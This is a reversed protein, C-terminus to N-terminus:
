IDAVLGLTYIWREYELLDINADVSMYVVSAYASLQKYVPVKYSGNVTYRIEHRDFSNDPYDRDEYRFLLAAQSKLPLSAILGAHGVSDIRNYNDGSANVMGYGYGIWTNVKGGALYFHQYLSIITKQNDRDNEDNGPDEFTEGEVDVVLRTRLTNSWIFTAEPSAAWNNSYSDNDLFAAMYYAVGGVRVTMAGPKLDYSGGIDARHFMINLSSEQFQWNAYGNYSVYAKAAENDVLNYRANLDLVARGDERHSIEEPLPSDVNVPIINTDYQYLLRLRISFPKGAAAPGLGTELGRVNEAAKKGLETDPNVAAAQKFYGAADETKGLRTSCVGAYYLAAQGYVESGQIKQFLPLAQGFQNKGMLAQGKYLVAAEGAPNLALAQDASAIADDFSGTLVQAWALDELAGADKPNLEAAKKLLPVAAEPKDKALQCLGAYHYAEGNDPEEAVVQDLLALAEDYKKESFKVKAQEL